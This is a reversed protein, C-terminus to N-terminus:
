RLAAATATTVINVARYTPDYLELGDIVLSVLVNSTISAGGGRLIRNNKLTIYKCTHPDIDDERDKFAYEQVAIVNNSASWEVGGLNFGFSLYGGTIINGDYRM